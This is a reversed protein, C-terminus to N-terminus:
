DWKGSPWEKKAKELQDEEIKPAAVIRGSQLRWIITGNLDMEEAGCKNCIYKKDKNEKVPGACGACKRVTM